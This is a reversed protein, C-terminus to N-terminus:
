DWYPGMIDGNFGENEPSEQRHGGERKRLFICSMACFTAWSTALLSDAAWGSVNINSIDHYIMIEIYYYLIILLIYIYIYIYVCTCIM